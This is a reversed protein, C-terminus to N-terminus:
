YGVAERYATDFSIVLVADGDGINAANHLAGRPISVTDGANMEVTVENMTYRIKGSIVHLIEDCNPHFHRPNSRGQKLIAVGTTMTRSSGMEASTLWRLEGWPMPVVKTDGERVVVAKGVIPDPIAIGQRPVDIRATWAIANVLLRRLQPEELAAVFHGGTFGFARGGDPREHAWALIHDARGTADTKGDRGVVARLIPTISRRHDGFDLTPYFEDRITFAAVGSSIPHDRTAPELTVTELTRDVMGNRRAGLWGVLPISADDRPVTSAQHLCILGTGRDMLTRLADIRRPDAFPAPDEQVGDFYCLITSAGELTALDAPWGGTYALVDVDAFAPAARLWAAILPIGNPFDHEGPGHSKKGGVLVIKKGLAPAKLAAAGLNPPAPAPSQAGATGGVMMGLAIFAAV